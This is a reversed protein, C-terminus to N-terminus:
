MYISCSSFLCKKRNRYYFKEPSLVDQFIGTARFAFEKCGFSAFGVFILNEM